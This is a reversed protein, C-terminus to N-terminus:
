ISEETSQVESHRIVDDQAIAFSRNLYFHEVISHLSYRANMRIPFVLVGGWGEGVPSPSYNLLHRTNIRVLFVFVGGWGEGVPSPSCNLLDTPHAFRIHAWRIYFCTAHM